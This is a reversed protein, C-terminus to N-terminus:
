TRSKRSSLHSLEETNHAPEVTALRQLLEALDHHALEGNNEWKLIHAKTVPKQPDM